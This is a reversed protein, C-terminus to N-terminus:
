IKTLLNAERFLQSRFIKRVSFSSSCKMTVTLVAKRKLSWLKWLFIIAHIMCNVKRSDLSRWHPSKLIRRAQNLSLQRASNRSYRMWIEIVRRIKIAWTLSAGIESPFLQSPFKVSEGSKRFVFLKNSVIRSCNQQVGRSTVDNRHLDRKEEDTPWPKVM